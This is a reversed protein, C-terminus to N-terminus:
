PIAFCLFSHVSRPFSSTQCHSLSLPCWSFVPTSLDFFTEPLRHTSVWRAVPPILLALPVSPFRPLPSFPSEIMSYFELPFSSSARLLSYFRSLFQTSSSSHGQAIHFILFTLPCKLQLLLSRLLSASAERVLKMWCPYNLVPYRKSRSHLGKEVARPIPGSVSWKSSFNM